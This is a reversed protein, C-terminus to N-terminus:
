QKLRAKSVKREVELMRNEIDNIRDYYLLNLNDMNNSFRWEVHYINAIEDGAIEFDRFNAKDTNDSQCIISGKTKFNNQVRKVFSAGSRNVIFYVEGNRIDMWEDFTLLRFIIFDNYLLTPTMSEGNVKGCYYNGSKKYLMDTPWTLEGLTEPNDPNFCGYGAAGAVDVIPISVINTSHIYDNSPLLQVRKTDKKEPEAEKNGTLIWNLSIDFNTSFNALIDPGANMRSNLIESFRSSSIDLVEAINKKTLSKDKELLSNVAEIFRENISEKTISM